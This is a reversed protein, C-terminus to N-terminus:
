SFAPRSTDIWGPPGETLPGCSSAEPATSKAMMEDPMWAIPMVLFLIGIVMMAASICRLSCIRIACLDAPKCESASMFPLGIM